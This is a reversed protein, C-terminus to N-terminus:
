NTTARLWGWAIRSGCWPCYSIPPLEIGVIVEDDSIRLCPGYGEADTGSEFADAMSKCCVCCSRPVSVTHIRHKQTM